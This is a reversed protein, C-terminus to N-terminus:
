ADRSTCVSGQVYGFYVTETSSGAAAAAGADAASSAEEAATAERPKFVVAALAMVATLTGRRSLVAASRGAAPECSPHAPEEAASARPAMRRGTVDQM